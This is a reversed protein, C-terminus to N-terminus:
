HHERRAMWLDEAASRRLYVPELFYPDEYRGAALRERALGALAEGRPLNAETGAALVSQPLELSGRELTPGVVLTGLALGVRWDEVSQIRTPGVRLLPAGPADRRFEAAFVDGRQADAVAAVSLCASPAGRALIELSDLGVVPKRLAYALTKAATLGIRLGTYSGPGLGVAIGDLDALGLGARRLLERIAPVLARGHRQAPDPAAVYDAGDGRAVALAARLTSTDLALLNM